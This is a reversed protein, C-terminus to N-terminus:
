LLPLNGTIRDIKASTSPGIGICTVTGPAVETLGADSIISYTLGLERAETGLRTIDSESSVKVVVKKQGEGYWARFERDNNKQSRLACDVAAHAVQAATKGKSIGLDTRVAVVLKYSFTRETSSM